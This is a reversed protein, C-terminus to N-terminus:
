PARYFVECRGNRCAAVFHDLPPCPEFEADCPVTDALAEVARTWAALADRRVGVYCTGRCDDSPLPLHDLGELSPAVVCDTDVACARFDASLGFRAGAFFQASGISGSSSAEGPAAGRCAAGLAVVLGTWIVIRPNM